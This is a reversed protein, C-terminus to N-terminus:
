LVETADSMRQMSVPNRWDIDIVFDEIKAIM